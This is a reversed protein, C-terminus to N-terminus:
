EGRFQRMAPTNMLPNVSEHPFLLDTLSLHIGMAKAARAIRRAMDPKARNRGSLINGLHQQTIGAKRALRGKEGRVWYVRLYQSSEM